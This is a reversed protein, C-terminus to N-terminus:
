YFIVTNIESEKFANSQKETVNFISESTYSNGVYALRSKSFEIEIMEGNKLVIIANGATEKGASKFRITFAVYKNSEVSGVSLGIQMYSDGAVPLVNCQTISINEKKFDKCIDCQAVSSKVIFQLTILLILITKM